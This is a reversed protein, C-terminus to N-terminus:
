EKLKDDCYVGLKGLAGQCIDTRTAGGVIFQPDDTVEQLFLLFLDPYAYDEWFDNKQQSQGGELNLGTGISSSYVFTLSPLPRLHLCSCLDAFHRDGCTQNQRPKCCTFQSM